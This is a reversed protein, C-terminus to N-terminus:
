NKKGKKRKKPQLSGNQNPGDDLVLGLFFRQIFNLQRGVLLLAVVLSCDVQFCSLNGHHV